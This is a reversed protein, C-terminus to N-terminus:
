RSSEHYDNQGTGRLGPQDRRRRLKHAVHSNSFPRNNGRQLHMKKGQGNSLQVLQQPLITRKLSSFQQIQPTAAVEGARAVDRYPTGPM